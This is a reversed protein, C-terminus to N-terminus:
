SAKQAARKFLKMIIFGVTITTLVPWAAAILSTADTGVTAIAATALTVDALAVSSTVALGAALLM